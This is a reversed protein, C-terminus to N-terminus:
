HPILPWLYILLTIKPDADTWSGTSRTGRRRKRGAGGRQCMFRKEGGRTRRVWATGPQAHQKDRNATMLRVCFFRWCVGAHVCQFVTPGAAWYHWLQWPAWLPFFSEVYLCTPLSHHLILRNNTKDNTLLTTVWWEMSVCVCLHVCLTDVPKCVFCHDRIRSLWSSKDLGARM